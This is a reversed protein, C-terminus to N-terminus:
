RRSPTSATSAVVVRPQSIGLRTAIDRQRIGHEHSLRSAMTM